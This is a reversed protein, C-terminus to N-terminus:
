KDIARAAGRGAPPAHAVARERNEYGRRPEPTPGMRAENADLAAGVIERRRRPPWM